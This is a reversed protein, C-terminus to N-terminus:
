GEKVGEKVGEKECEKDGEKPPAPTDGALFSRALPFVVSLASCVSESLLRHERQSGCESRVELYHLWSRLTGNVYLRSLTLGEPLLM